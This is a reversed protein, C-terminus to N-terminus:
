RICVRRFRIVSISLSKVVIADHMADVDGGKM